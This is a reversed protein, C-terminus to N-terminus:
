KAGGLLTQLDSDDVMKILKLRCADDSLEHKVEELIQEFTCPDDFAEELVYTESSFRLKRYRRTVCVRISKGDYLHPPCKSIFISYDEGLNLIDRLANM